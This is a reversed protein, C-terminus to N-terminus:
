SLIELKVLVIIVLLVTAGIWHGTSYLAAISCVYIADGDNMEPAPIV